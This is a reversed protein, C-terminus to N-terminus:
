IVILHLLPCVAACRERLSETWTGCGTEIQGAADGKPRSPLEQLQLWFIWRGEPARSSDVAMPQGVVVTPDAPLLRREAENVARSVGNM